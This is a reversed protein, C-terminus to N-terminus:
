MVVAIKGSAIEELNKGITQLDPKVLTRASNNVPAGGNAGGGNSTKFFAKPLGTSLWEEASLPQDPHVASYIPLDGKMANVTGEKPDYVFIKRARELVDPLVDPDVGAKVAYGTIFEDIAKAQLKQEAEVRNREAADLKDQLPKVAKSVFGEILKPLDAASGAGMQTLKEKDAKLSQYEAKMGQFEEPTIGEFSKLKGQLTENEKMVRINNDRFEALKGKMSEHESMAVMGEVQPMYKGDKEAYHEKLAEPLKEFEEKTITKLM